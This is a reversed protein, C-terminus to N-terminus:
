EADLGSGEYEDHRRLWAMGYPLDDENRGHPTIDLLHYASNFIDMGRAYSSYTHFIDADDRTFVSIGQWEEM